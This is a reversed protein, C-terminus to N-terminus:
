RKAGGDQSSLRTEGPLSRNGDGLWRDMLVSDVWRGHKFGVARLTGAVVFGHRAHLGISGANASDGIVAIMKRFGMATGEAILGGLLLNGAGRRLAWPAVYVSDELTFRYGPRTRYYGAYGYGLLGEPGEAVLYPMGADRLAQFRGTFEELGPPELEFSALGHLVHHAYIEQLAPMDEPRAPRIQVRDKGRSQNQDEGKANSSTM